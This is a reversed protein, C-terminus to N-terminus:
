TARLSVTKLGAARALRRQRLDFTLFNPLGLELACAVHLVDLSRCGIDATSELSLEAARRLASRWLVDAHSYRGGAIDEDFSRVADDRAAADIQRRFVALSLANLIEVRAHPTLPLAGRTRARWGTMAASETQHLYLKILASPEVYTSEASAM